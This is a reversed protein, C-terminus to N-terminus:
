AGQRREALNMADATLIAKSASIIERPKKSREIVEGLRRLVAARIDDSIPWRERPRPTPTTTDRTSERELDHM